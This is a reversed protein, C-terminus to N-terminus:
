HFGGHSSSYSMTTLSLCDTAAAVMMVGQLGFFGHNVWRESIVVSETTMSGLWSM